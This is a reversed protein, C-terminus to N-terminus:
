KRVGNGFTNEGALTIYLFGDKDQHKSYLESLTASTPPLTSNNIFSFIAMEPTLKIEKRVQLLFRGMTFSSPVLYKIKTFKTEDLNSNKAPQCIIPIHDPHALRIKDSLEKRKEFSHSDQFLKM